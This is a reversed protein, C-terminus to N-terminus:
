QQAAYIKHTRAQAYSFKASNKHRNEVIIFGNRKPSVASKIRRRRKKSRAASKPSHPIGRRCFAGKGRVGEGNRGIKTRRGIEILAPIRIEGARIFRGRTGKKRRASSSLPSLRFMGSYVGRLDRRLRSTTYRKSTLARAIDKVNEEAARKLANELGESCDLVSKIDEASRQLLALKELAELDNELTLPLDGRVYEPVGDSLKEGRELAARLATASPYDARLTEDSYGSGIRRIPFLRITKQRSRIARAYEVGLINNPATLLSLPFTRERSDAPELGTAEAWAGARAKIYSEGEKMRRRIDDSVKAPESELLEAARFFDKENGNEAGFCLAEVEPIAASLKVAGQAFFEASSTSFVVPLEIVADAGALVAHRARAYKGMAAAEGRQVFNGSMICVVFDAGTTQKAAGLHYLHGNHFPNYECIIACIKM